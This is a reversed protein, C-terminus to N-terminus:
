EFIQNFYLQCQEIMVNDPDSRVHYLGVRYQFQSPIEAASGFQASAHLPVSGEGKPTSIRTNFGVEAKIDAAGSFLKHRVNALASVPGAKDRSSLFDLESKLRVTTKRCPLCM